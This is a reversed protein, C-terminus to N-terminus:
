WGRALRLRSCAAARLPTSIGSAIMAQNLHPPYLERMEKSLRPMIQRLQYYTLTFVSTESM